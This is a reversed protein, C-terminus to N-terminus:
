DPSRGRWLLNTVHLRAGGNGAVPANFAAALIQQDQMWFEAIIGRKILRHRAPMGERASGCNRQFVLWIASANIEAPVPAGDM